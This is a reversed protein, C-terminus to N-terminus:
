RHDSVTVDSDSVPVSSFFYQSSYFSTPDDVDVVCTPMIVRADDSDIVSEKVVVDDVVSANTDVFFSVM